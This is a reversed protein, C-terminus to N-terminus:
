LYRVKPGGIRGGVPQDCLVYTVEVKQAQGGGGWGLATSLESSVMRHMGGEQATM